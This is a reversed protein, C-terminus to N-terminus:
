KASSSNLRDTTFQQADKAQPCEPPLTSSAPAAGRGQAVSSVPAVVALTRSALLLAFQKNRM